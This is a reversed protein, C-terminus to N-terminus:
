EILEEVHLAMNKMEELDMTHEKLQESELGRGEWSGMGCDIRDLQCRKEEEQRKVKSEVLQAVGISLGWSALMEFLTQRLGHMAIM